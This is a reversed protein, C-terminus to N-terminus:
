VADGRKAGCDPCVYIYGSMFILYLVGPLIAFLFLLIMVLASGKEQKEPMKFSGCAPCAIRVGAAAPVSPGKPGLYDLTGDAVRADPPAPTELSLKSFCEVCVIHDEFERPTELKGFPRECNECQGVPPRVRSVLMGKEHAITEAERATTAVVERTLERGTHPNAGEVIWKM